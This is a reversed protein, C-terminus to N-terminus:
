DDEVHTMSHSSRVQLLMHPESVLELWLVQHQDVEYIDLQEALLCQKQDARITMSLRSSVYVPWLSPLINQWKSQHRHHVFNLHITFTFLNSKRYLQEFFSTSDRYLLDNMSGQFNLTLPAISSNLSLRLGNRRDLFSEGSSTNGDYPVSLHFIPRATSM